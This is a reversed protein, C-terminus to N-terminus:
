CWSIDTKCKSAYWRAHLQNKPSVISKEDVDSVPFIRRADGRMFHERYASNLDALDDVSLCPLCLQCALPACSELCPVQSCVEPDVAINKVASIMAETQRSRCIIRKSM